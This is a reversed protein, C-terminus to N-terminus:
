VASRKLKIRYEAIKKDLTPRSIGLALAAHIKKNGNQGLAEVVAAREVASVMDSLKTSRGLATGGRVEPPLDWLQIEAVPACALSAWELCAWLEGLNGPWGYERIAKMASPSVAPMPRDLDRSRLELIQRVLLPLDPKRRRLATVEVQKALEAFAIQSPSGPLASAVLRVSGSAGGGIQKLWRERTEPELRELAGLHLTGGEALLQARDMAEPGPRVEMWDVFPGDARDSLEHMAIAADRRGSFREGVFLVPERKPSLEHLQDMLRHTPASAEVSRARFLALGLSRPRRTLARDSVRGLAERGAALMAGLFGLGDATAAPAPTLLLALLQEGEAVIPTALLEPTLATSGAQLVQVTAASPPPLPEGHALLLSGEGQKCAFIAARHIGLERASEELLLRLAAARTQSGAVAAVARLRRSPADASGPLLAELAVEVRPGDARATQIEVASEM